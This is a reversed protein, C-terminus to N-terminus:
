KNGHGAENTPSFKLSQLFAKFEDRHKTVVDRDGKLKIFWILGGNKVIAALTAENNKSEAPKSADPVMEAYLAPQGDIKIEQTVSPLDEKKIESLGVEGRWRNINVLPDAIMPGADLPFDSLWVHAEKTGDALLFDVKRFGSPPAEKWSPPKKFKPIASSATDRAPAPATDIPPHGAPLEPAKTPPGTARPGLAGSAFPAAMGGSYQGKMDVVTITKGGAKAERSVDAIQKAEIPPLQLQGRWRNINALVSEETGPWSASNVTIELRKEGPLVITATRFQNGAEEKWGDPLKWKARGDDGLSLGAFFDNIDKERKEIEPIPGVAKFFWAQGDAPLIATIMRDTPEGPKTPATDAVAVPKKEKPVTYSQIEEARQCGLAICLATGAVAFIWRQAPITFRPSM